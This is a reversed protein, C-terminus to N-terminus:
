MGNAMFLLGNHYSRVSNGCLAIKRLTYLKGKSVYIVVYDSSRGCSGHASGSPSVPDLGRGGVQFIVFSYVKKAISTLTGQFIM